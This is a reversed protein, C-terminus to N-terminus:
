YIETTRFSVSVAFAGSCGRVGSIPMVSASVESRMVRAAHLLYVVSSVLLDRLNEFM